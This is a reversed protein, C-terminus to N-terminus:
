IFSEVGGTWIVLLGFVIAHTRAVLGDGLGGMDGFGLPEGGVPAGSVLWAAAWGSLLLLIVVLHWKVMTQGLIVQEVSVSRVPAPVVPELDVAVIPSLSLAPAAVPAPASAAVPATDVSVISSFALAPPPPPPPPSSAAIPEVDVAMIPSFSLAPASPPATAVSVSSIGSFSLTPRPPPSPAVPASEVSMIPAFAMSPASASPAPLATAAEEKRKLAAELDRSTAKHQEQSMKLAANAIEFKKTLGQVEMQLSKVTEEARQHTGQLSVYARELNSSGNKLMENAAVHGAAEIELMEVRRMLDEYRKEVLDYQALTVYGAKPGPPATEAAAAATTFPNECGSSFDFDGNSGAGFVFANTSSSSMIYPIDQQYKSIHNFSATSIHPRRISFTRDSTRLESCLSDKFINELGNLNLDPYQSCRSDHDAEVGHSSTPPARNYTLDPIRM